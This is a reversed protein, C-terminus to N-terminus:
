TSLLEQDRYGGGTGLLKANYQHVLPWGKPTILREWYQEGERGGSSRVEFKM